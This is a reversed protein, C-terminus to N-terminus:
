ARAAAYVVCQMQIVHWTEGEIVPKRSQSGKKGTTIETSVYSTVDRRAVFIV